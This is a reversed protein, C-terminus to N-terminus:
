SVSDVIEKALTGNWLNIAKEASTKRYEYIRCKKSGVAGDYKHCCDSYWCNGFKTKSIGFETTGGNTMISLLLTALYESSIYPLEEQWGVKTTDIGKHKVIYEVISSETIWHEGNDICKIFDDRIQKAEQYGMILKVPETWSVFDEFRLIMYEFCLLDALYVNKYQKVTNRIDIYYTLAKSNDLVKDVFIIYTDSSNFKYERLYDALKNNGGFGRIDISILKQSVESDCMVQWFKTTASNQNDEHWIHIM